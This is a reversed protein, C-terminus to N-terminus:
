NNDYLLLRSIETPYRSAAPHVALPEFETLPFIKRKEVADMGARPGAWGGIWHTDPYITASGHLQGSVEM